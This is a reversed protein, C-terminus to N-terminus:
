GELPHVTITTWAGLHIRDHPALPVETGPAIPDPEDNLWTGNSSGVDVVAYSGDSQRRLCAHRRSVSADAPEASLDVTANARRGITIEDDDLAITWAPRPDSPFEIDAPAVVAHFAPDATVTAQWRVVASPATVDHGCKECFRDGALLRNGCVHCPFSKTVTTTNSIPRAGELLAGCVDCYDDTASDHGVPCRTTV